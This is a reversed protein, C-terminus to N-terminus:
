RNGGQSNQNYSKGSQTQSGEILEILAATSELRKKTNDINKENILIFNLYDKKMGVQLFLGKDSELEKKLALCEKYYRFLGSYMREGIDKMKTYDKNSNAEHFEQRLNELIKGIDSM